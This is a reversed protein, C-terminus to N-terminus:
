VFYKVDSLNNRVEYRGPLTPRRYICRMDIVLMSWTKWISNWNNGNGFYCWLWYLKLMNKTERNKWKLSFCYMCWTRYKKTFQFFIVNNNLRKCRLQTNITNEKGAAKFTISFVVGLTWNTSCFVPLCVHRYFLVSISIRYWFTCLIQCLGKNENTIPLGGM